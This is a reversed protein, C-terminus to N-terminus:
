DIQKHVGTKPLKEIDDKSMKLYITDGQIRDIQAVSITVDKPGWLHGERLELHTVLGTAKDILLEVVRGVYGDLAEVRSRHVIAVEGQPVLEHELTVVATEMISAPWLMYSPSPMGMPIYEAQIFAEMRSLRDKSCQIHIRRASSESVLEVPVLHQANTLSHEKVVLHTVQETDPYLVIHTSQGCPGDTCDVEVDIPMDVTITEM